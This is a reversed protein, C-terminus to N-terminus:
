GHVRAGVYDCTGSMRGDTERHRKLTQTHEQATPHRLRAGVQSGAGTIWSKSDHGLMIVEHSVEQGVEQPSRSLSVVHHSKLFSVVHHSTEVPLLASLGRPLTTCPVGVFTSGYTGLPSPPKKTTDSVKLRQGAATLRSGSTHISHNSGEDGVM